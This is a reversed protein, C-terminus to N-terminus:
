GPRLFPRPSQRSPGGGRLIERADDEMEGENWQFFSEAVFGDYDGYEACAHIQGSAEGGLIMHARGFHYAVGVPTTDDVFRASLDLVPLSLQSYGKGRHWM